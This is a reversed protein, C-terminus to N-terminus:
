SVTAEANTIQDCIRIPIGGFEAFTKGDSEALTRRVNSNTTQTTGTGPGFSRQIDLWQKVTRNMYWAPRGMKMNPIRAMARNMLKPLDAPSAGALDSIDINGIRVVYRWDRVSLGCDWKYHTRYGQMKNQSSDTYITQEGLDKMQLGAQSGKPFIGHVTNNDWVVLWISSNDSSSGGGSIFNNATQSTATSTTNYRPALGMFREPNAGTNGYFLTGAFQQTLGELFARDENLRFQASNGNLDALAKDIESYIELMGMSDTVQSSTSKTSGIGENLRRWSGSPLSTRVSTRHTTPGNGEVWIMDTTVENLQDLLEVVQATSGDPNLQKAWDHLTLRTTSLTAM